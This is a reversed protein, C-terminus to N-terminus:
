HGGAARGVDLVSRTAVWEGIVRRALRRSKLAMGLSGGILGVGVIAVTGFQRPFEGEESMSSKKWPSLAARPIFQAVLEQGELLATGLLPQGGTALM